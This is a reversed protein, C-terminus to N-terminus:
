LGDASKCNALAELLKEQGNKKVVSKVMLWPHASPWHLLHSSIVSPLGLLHGGQFYPLIFYLV